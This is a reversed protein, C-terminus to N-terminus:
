SKLMNEYDGGLVQAVSLGKEVAQSMRKEKAAIKEATAIIQEADVAAIFVVGNGDALVLDGPSVDVGGFTLRCNWDTQIVRGRATRPTASRAYVPYGIDAAEDIDRVAGDVITGAIGRTLAARALIGGWGSMEPLDNAIVIINGPGASDIAAAGLHSKSERNDPAGLQVTVAEGAIRGRVSMPGVGVVTGDRELADLADSVACTDLQMLREIYPKADM